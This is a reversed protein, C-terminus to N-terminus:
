KKWGESWGMDDIEQKSWLDKVWPWDQDQCLNNFARPLIFGHMQLMSSRWLYDSARWCVRAKQEPTKAGSAVILIEMLKEAEQKVANNIEM